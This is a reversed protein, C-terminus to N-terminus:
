QRTMGLRADAPRPIEGAQQCYSQTLNKFEIAQLIDSLFKKGQDTM